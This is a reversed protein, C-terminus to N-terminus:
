FIELKEERRAKPLTYNTKYKYGVKRFYNLREAMSWEFMDNKVINNVHREAQGVRDEVLETQKKLEKHLEKTTEESSQLELLTKLNEVTKLGTEYKTEFKHIAVGIATIFAVNRIFDEDRSKIEFLERRMDVFLLKRKSPDKETRIQEYFYSM